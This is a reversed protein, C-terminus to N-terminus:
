AQGNEAKIRLSARYVLGRFSAVTGRWGRAQLAIFLEAGKVGQKLLEAAVAVWGNGDRQRARAPPAQELKSVLEEYSGAEEAIVALRNLGVRRILDPRETALKALLEQKTM